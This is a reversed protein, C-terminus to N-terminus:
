RSTVAKSISANKVNEALSYCTISCRRRVARFSRNANCIPKGRILPRTRSAARM